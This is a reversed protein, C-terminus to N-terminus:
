PRRVHNLVTLPLLLLLPQPFIGLSSDLLGFSDEPPATVGARFVGGLGDGVMGSDAISTSYVNRPLFNIKSLAFFFDKIYLNQPFPLKKFM